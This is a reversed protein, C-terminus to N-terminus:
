KRRPNMSRQSTRKVDSRRRKKERVRREKVNKIEVIEPPAMIWELIPM